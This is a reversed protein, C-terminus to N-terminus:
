VGITITAFAESLLVKSGVRKFFYFQVYGKMTVDDRVFYMITRDVIRFGKSFDGMIVPTSGPAIDPMDPMIVYPSGMVTNPLGTALGSTSWLPRGVGDLLCLINVWTQRNFAYTRSYTQGQYGEYKIAGMIIILSQATLTEPAGSMVTAINNSPNLLGEPQRTGNGITFAQGEMQAFRETVDNAIEAQMDFTSDQLDEWTIPVNVKLTKMPVDVRTYSSNSDFPLEGEGQWYGSALVNRVPFMSVNSFTSTVTALRRWNSVETIRRTLVASYEPPVLFGGYAGVDTRLYEGEKKEMNALIEQYTYKKGTARDKKDFVVDNLNTGNYYQKLSNDCVMAQALARETPIELIKIFNEYAEKNEIVKEAEQVNFKVNTNFFKRELAEIVEKDKARKTELEALKLTIEQNKKNLTELDPTMKEVLSKVEFNDMGKTKVLEKLDDVNKLLLKNADELSLKTLDIQKVEVSKIDKVDVSM